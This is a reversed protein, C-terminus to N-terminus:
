AAKSTAGKLLTDHTKKKGGGGCTWTPVEWWSCLTTPYMVHVCRWAMSPVTEHGSTEGERGRERESVSTNADQERVRTDGTEMVGGSASIHLSLDGTKRVVDHRESPRVAATPRRRAAGITCTHAHIDLYCSLRARGFGPAVGGATGM